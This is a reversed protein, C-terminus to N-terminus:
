DAENSSRFERCVVCVMVVQMQLCAGVVGAGTLWQRPPQVMTVEAALVEALM